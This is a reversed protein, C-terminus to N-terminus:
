FRINLKKNTDFSNDKNNWTTLRKHLEWTPQLEFRMKTGSKNTESWYNFFNLLMDNSYNSHSFVDKNFKEKNEKIKIEREKLSGKSQPLRGIPKPTPKPTPKSKTGGKVGGRIINLRPECSPIFIKNDTINILELKMLVSLIENIKNVEANYRRSWIKPKIEVINDSLM